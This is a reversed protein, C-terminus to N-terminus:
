QKQSAKADRWLSYFGRRGIITVVDKFTFPPDRSFVTNIFCLLLKLRKESPDFTM